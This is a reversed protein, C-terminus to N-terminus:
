QMLECRLICWQGMVTKQSCNQLSKQIAWAARVLGLGQRFFTIWFVCPVDFICFSARIKPM